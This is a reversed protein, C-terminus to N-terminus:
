GQQRGRTGSRGRRGRACLEHREAAWTKFSARFGHATIDSRKMRRLVMLLAMNSLVARRDGPFVYENQRVSQMQTLISIAAENLPVRHQRRAKMRTPPIAWIRASLDIEDWRAFLVEGTRAVTMIAFELARAAIGKQGRLEGLFAAIEAYPLAAHHKVERVKSRARCRLTPDNKFVLHVGGSRTNHVRTPLLRDRHVQFWRDGGHRPDIDLVALGSPEGTPVGILEGPYRDWLRRVEDPDCTADKFGHPTTRRKDDACPFCPIEQAALELAAAMNQLKM